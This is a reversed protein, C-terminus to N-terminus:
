AEDVSLLINFVFNLRSLSSVTYFVILLQITFTRSILLNRPFYVYLNLRTATSFLTATRSDHLREKRFIAHRASLRNASRIFSHVYRLSTIKRQSSNFVSEPQQM